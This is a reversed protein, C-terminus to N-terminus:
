PAVRWPSMSGWNRLETAVADLTMDAHCTTCPNPMNYHETMAPTIFRFTHSRVSVDGITRAIAPMHCDVCGVKDASHQTHATITAGRPGAPSNPSHCTLCVASAPKILDAENETGHVDHCSWCNVGKTYM